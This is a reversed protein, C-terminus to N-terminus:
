LLNDMTATIKKMTMPVFSVKESNEESTGGWTSKKDGCIVFQSVTKNEEGSLEVRSLSAFYELSNMWTISDKKIAIGATKLMSEALNPNQWAAPLFARPQPLQYSKESKKTAPSLALWLIASEILMTPPEYLTFHATDANMEVSMGQEGMTFIHVRRTTGSKLIHDLRLLSQASALWQIIATPLRDVQWGFSPSPRVLGRTLLSAHGNKQEAELQSLTRGSIVDDPLPLHSISLAGALWRLEALSLDFHFIGAAQKM